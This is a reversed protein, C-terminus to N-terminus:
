FDGPRELTNLAKDIIQDEIASKIKDSSVRDALENKLSQHKNKFIM